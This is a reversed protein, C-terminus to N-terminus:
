AVLQICYIRGLCIFHFYIPIIFLLILTVNYYLLMTHGGGAEKFKQYIVDDLSFLGDPYLLLVLTCIVTLFHYFTLFVKGLLEYVATPDLAMVCISNFNFVIVWQISNQNPVGRVKMRIMLKILNIRKSLFLM